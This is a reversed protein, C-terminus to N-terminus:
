KPCPVRSSDRLENPLLLFVCDEGPQLACDLIRGRKDHKCTDSGERRSASVVSQKCVLEMRVEKMVGVLSHLESHHLAMDQIM